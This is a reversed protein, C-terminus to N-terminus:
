RAPPEICQVAPRNNLHFALNIVFLICSILWPALYREHQVEGTVGLDAILFACGLEAILEEFAYEESEVRTPHILNLRHAAGV